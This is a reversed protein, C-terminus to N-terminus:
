AGGKVEDLLAYLRYGDDVFARYAAARAELRTPYDGHQHGGHRFYAGPAIASSM